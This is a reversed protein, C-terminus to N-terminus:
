HTSQRSPGTTGWLFRGMRMCLGVWAGGAKPVATMEFHGAHVDRSRAYVILAIAGLQNAFSAGTKPKPKTTPASYPPTPSPTKHASARVHIPSTCM